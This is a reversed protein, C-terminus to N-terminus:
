WEASRGLEESALLACKEAREGRRMMSCFHLKSFLVGTM